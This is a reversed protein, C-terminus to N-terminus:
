TPLGGSFGGQPDPMLFVSGEEQAFNVFKARKEAARARVMMITQLDCEYESSVEDALMWRLASFAEQPVDFNQGSSTIDQIPRQICLYLSYTADAPTPWVTVTALGIQPDYYWNCPTGTTGKPTLQDYEQRTLPSLPTDIPPTSGDRIWAGTISVPRANTISPSGSEAITYAAQNAVFPTSITQYVWAMKGETNLEKLLTNLAFACNTYDETGPTEGVAIVKLTRLSANIVDDRSVLFAATGSTVPLAM